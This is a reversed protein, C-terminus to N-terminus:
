QPLGECGWTSNWGMTKAIVPWAAEDACRRSHVTLRGLVDATSLNGFVGDTNFSHITTIGTRYQPAVLNELAINCHCVPSSQLVTFPMSKRDNSFLLLRQLEVLQSLPCLAKHGKDRSGIPLHSNGHFATIHCFSPPIIEAAPTRYMTPIRLTERKWCHVTRISCVRFIGTM